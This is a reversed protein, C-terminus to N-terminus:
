APVIYIVGRNAGCAKEPANYYHCYGKNKVSYIKDIKPKIWEFTYEQNNYSDYGLRGTPEKFDHIAIVPLLEYKAIAELEDLLPCYSNWHADLFFITDHGIGRHPIVYDLVQESSGHFLEVHVKEDSFRKACRDILNRDLECSVAKQFNRALWITTDGENTGTEVATTLSYKQKLRLFEEEIFVDGNFPAGM